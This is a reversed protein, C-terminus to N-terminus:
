KKATEAIVRNVFDAGVRKKVDEVIGASGKRMQERFQPSVEDFVMGRKKIEAISETEEAAARSRQWAVAKAMSDRLMKQQAAPLAEFAKRNAVVNIFDFFHATNSVFKQVEFYRSASIVSFPNEQGDVVGQQLASYLEKIDMAVPNAGLARFTALHTENPQMRIKLGKLDEVSKIPRKSNTVHRGGLEMFGLDTLGKDAFKADLLKGVPGDVVRFAQDRSEFQFPLSIAELEPVTRSLFAMGVWIMQLTGARVNQVNEAAGGLQMAPFVDVTFQGGSAKAIEDRFQNMAVSSSHETAFNGALRWKTQAHAATAVCLIALAALTNRM